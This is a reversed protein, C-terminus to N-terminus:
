PNTENKFGKAKIIKEHARYNGQFQKDIWNKYFDYAKKNNEIVYQEFFANESLNGSGQVVFYDNNTKLLLIKAHNNNLKLAYDKESNEFLKILKHTKVPYFRPMVQSFVLRVKSVNGKDLFDFFSDVFDVGISYSKLYLEEVGGSEELIRLFVSFSNFTGETVIRLEEGKKPLKTLDKFNKIKKFIVNKVYVGLVFDKKKEKKNPKPKKAKGLSNLCEKELKELDTMKEVM